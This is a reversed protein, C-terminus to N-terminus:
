QKFVFAYVFDFGVNSLTCTTATKFCNVLSSKYFYLEFKANSIYVYIGICNKIAKSLLSSYHLILIRSYNLFVEM